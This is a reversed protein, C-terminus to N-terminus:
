MDTDQEQGIVCLALYKKDILPLQSFVSVTQAEPMEYIKGTVGDWLRGPAIELETASKKGVQLGTVMREATIADIVLHALSNAAFTQANNFDESQIEQRDRYLVQKEM